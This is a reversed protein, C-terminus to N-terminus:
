TNQKALGLKTKALKDSFIKDVFKGFNSGAFCRHTLREISHVVKKLFKFQIETVAQRLLSKLASMPIKPVEDSSYLKRLVIEIAQEFPM